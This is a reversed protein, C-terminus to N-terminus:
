TSRSRCAVSAADLPAAGATANAIAYYLLVAFAGFGITDRVDAVPPDAHMRHSRTMTAHNM